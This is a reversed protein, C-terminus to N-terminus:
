IAMGYGTISIQASGQIIFWYVSIENYSFLWPPTLGHSLFSSTVNSVVEVDIPHSDSLNIGEAGVAFSSPAYSTIPMIVFIRYFSTVEIETGNPFVLVTQSQGQLIQPYIDIQVRLFTYAAKSVVVASSPGITYTNLNISHFSSLLTAQITAIVIITVLLWVKRM